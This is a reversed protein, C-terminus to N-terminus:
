LEICFVKELKIILNLFVSKQFNILDCFRNLLHFIIKDFRNKYCCKQQRFPSKTQHCFFSKTLGDWKGSIVDALVFFRMMAMTLSKDSASSCKFPKKDLVKPKM